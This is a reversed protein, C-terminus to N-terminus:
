NNNKTKDGNEIQELLSQIKIVESLMNKDVKRSSYDDIKKLIREIKDNKSDLTSSTSLGEKLRDLENYLYTKLELGDDKYSTIYHNILTKQNENLNNDYEKNFKELFTKLTLKNINPFPKKEEKTQTLMEVLKEELFVQKKPSEKSFVVQNITAIKKYDKIFNNWSEQGINKNIVSILQNKTEYSKKENLVYAQNRAEFIIKQILNRDINEIDEFSKYLELEERLIKGRSFYQKLINVIKNKQEKNETMTAKSLEKILVEYIFAVNRKKNHKLKM